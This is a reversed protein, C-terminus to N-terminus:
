DAHRDRQGDQSSADRTSVRLVVRRGLDHELADAVRGAVASLVGMAAASAKVDIRTATGSADFDTALEADLRGLRAHEITLPLDVSVAPTKPCSSPADFAATTPQRRLGASLYTSYGGGPATAETDPVDPVAVPATPRGCGDARDAGAPGAPGVDSLGIRERVDRHWTTDARIASLMREFADPGGADDHAVSRDPGWDAAGETRDLRMSM